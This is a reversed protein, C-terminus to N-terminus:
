GWLARAGSDGTLVVQGLVVVSVLVVLVPLLRDAWRNRSPQEGKGSALGSPGPLLFAAVVVVLAFVITLDALLTGRHQHTHVLQRLEPRANELAKGSTTALFALGVCGVSAIAVPWRTLWRWRPLVAFLIALVATLPILVVAAHVVLPHLPLGAFEM